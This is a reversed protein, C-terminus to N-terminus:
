HGFTGGYAHRTGFVTVIQSWTRWNLNVKRQLIREELLLLFLRVEKGRKTKKWLPTITEDERQAEGLEDAMVASLPTETTKLPKPSHQNAAFIGKKCQQSQATEYRQKNKKSKKNGRLNARGSCM